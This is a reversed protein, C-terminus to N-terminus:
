GTELTRSWVGPQFVRSKRAHLYLGDDPGIGVDDRADDRLHAAVIALACHGRLRHALVVAVALSQGVGRQRVDDYEWPGVSTAAM